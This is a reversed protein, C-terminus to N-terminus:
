RTIFVQAEASNKLFLVRGSNELFVMKRVEGRITLGSVPPMEATFGGKGDGKLLLAAMADYNGTGVDADNTNGCLLLDKKGDKDFDEYLIDNITSLQALEPFPKYHFSGNGDNFLIGSSFCSTKYVDMGQKQEDTFLEDLTRGSYMRYRYFKKRFMPMQDILQDRHYMPYCKGKIYYGLVADYSGNNDFDKGYITCPEDLAAYIRSNLGRNGLIIDLDGDGDVDELKMCNWWGTLGSLPIKREKNFDSITVEAPINVFKGDKWKFIMVPMWEGAILLEPKNDGDIDKWAATNVIGTSAVLGPAYEATVNKFIGHDNQLLLCNDHKPFRGPTVGGGVFLDMQGDGNFDLSVVCSGNNTEAPLATLSRSFNGKGDNIYLRDQYLRSGADFEAGGSVVYLDMDGDGDADFFVAGCDEYKKDATFFAQKKETFSGDANQLMLKKDNGSSGGIFIDELKDGNVDAKAFYPGKRSCKYPLLPERKFDIYDNEVHTYNFKKQQTTEKFVTAPKLEPSVPSVADSEFIDIIRDAAVNSMKIKKGTLFSIEVNPIVSMKGTGFHLMHEMSSIYGRQPDYHQVQLNGVDDTLKVTAGYVEHKQEKNNFFRFRLYHLPNITNSNNQMIFAEDDMNNVILDLDGDNDLDAYAAGQSFAPPADSWTASADDFHLTGNNHFFYNSVKTQPILKFWDDLRMTQGRAMLNKISDLVFEKYDWDTVDRKYGNSIFVDKWGDNDYDAILPSWSWDTQAMGSYWAIDSYHGNGNNISVSNKPYQYNLGLNHMIQVKDYNMNLVFLQKQRVPDESAMDLNFVDELGDNNLDNIDMGMSFFSAHNFYGSYNEHFTGNGNNIYLYDPKNFDNAIYIDPHGDHNFDYIGASLGFANHTLLGAKKTVDVFHDNRNEFLRNSIRYSATDDARVLVGNQMKATLTTITTFDRPHNVFFVDMDGDGDYDFFYSQLSYSDDDLGYKKAQDTFTNDGNNIYLFKKGTNNDLPNSKCVLIDLFGDNNIDIMNVGTTMQLTGGGVGAQETIDKFKMNGLNLYLKNQGLTSSFYLDPLGDNNIDGVAIGSGNYIHQYKFYYIDGTEIVDNRFTIGTQSSPLTTFLKQFQAEAAGINMGWFIILTAVKKNFMHLDNLTIKKLYQYSM